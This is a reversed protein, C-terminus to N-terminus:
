YKTVEHARRFQNLVEEPVFVPPKDGDQRAPYSHLVDLSYLVSNLGGQHLCKVSPPNASQWVIGRGPQKAHCPIIQHSFEALARVAVADQFLKYVIANASPLITQLLAQQRAFDM